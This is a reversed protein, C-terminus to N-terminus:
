EGEEIIARLMAERDTGLAAWGRNPEAYVSGGLSPGRHPLRSALDTIESNLMALERQHHTYQALWGACLQAVDPDAARERAIQEVAGVTLVGEPIPAAPRRALRAGVALGVLLGAVLAGLALAASM